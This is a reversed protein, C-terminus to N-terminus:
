EGSVLQRGSSDWVSGGDSGDGKKRSNRLYGFHVAGRRLSAASWRWGQV